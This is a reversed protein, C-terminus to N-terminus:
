KRERSFLDRFFDWFSEEKYDSFEGADFFVGYCQPCSEYHIHPQAADVMRLTDVHCKPCQIDEVDDYQRGTEPDGTDISEAGKLARLKDAEYSDFWIGGCGLCREVTVSHLTVQEVDSECKPCKM